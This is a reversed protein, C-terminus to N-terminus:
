INCSPRFTSPAPPVTKLSFTMIQKIEKEFHERSAIKNLRSADSITLVKCGSGDWNMTLKSNLELVTKNILKTHIFADLNKFPTFLQPELSAELM